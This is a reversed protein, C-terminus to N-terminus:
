ADGPEFGDGGPPPLGLEFAGIDCNRPIGRQDTAECANGGSGPPAPNGADVAPSNPSLAHTETSGGNNTL